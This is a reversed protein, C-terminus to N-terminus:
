GRAPQGQGLVSGFNPAVIRVVRIAIAEIRAARAANAAAPAALASGGPIVCLVMSDVLWFLMGPIVWLQRTRFARMAAVLPQEHDTM